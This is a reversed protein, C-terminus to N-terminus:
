IENKIIATILEKYSYGKDIMLMPFMSINTFGPLTNIENLYINKGDYFFDLRSLGKCNLGIFAKKAYEQIQKKINKPINAPILTISDKNYKADYDYFTNASVIEGIDSVIIKKDELIACELEKGNIYQEILVKSDIELAENIGKILEKKNNALSVGISSGSNCPKIIIPFDFNDLVKKIEKVSKIVIYPTTPINLSDFIIKSYEKDMGISSSIVNCGIYKIDFLELFGQLKGDEGGNGHIIPFVIDFQKIFTVINDILTTKKNIWDDLLNIDDEYIYWKNDKSIGVMTVDFLSIDINNMISTASKCSVEHENSVGGFLLLVKKM